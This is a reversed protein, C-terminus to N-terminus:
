YTLTLAPRLPPASEMSHFNVVAGPGVPIPQGDLLVGFNLAPNACWNLVMATINWNYVGCMAPGVVVAGAPPTAPPPVFPNNAGSTANCAACLAAGTPGPAWAGTAQRVRVNVPGALQAAHLTLVANTLTACVAPTPTPFRIMTLNRILPDNNVELDCSIGYDNWAGGLNSTWTDAAPFITATLASSRSEIPGDEADPTPACAALALALCTLQTRM